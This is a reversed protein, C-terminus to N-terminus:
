NTLENTQGETKSKRILDITLQYKPQLPTAQKLKSVSYIYTDNIAANCYSPKSPKALRLSPRGLAQVAQPKAQGAQPEAQRPRLRFSARGAQTKAQM